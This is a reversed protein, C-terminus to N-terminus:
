PSLNTAGVALNTSFFVKFQCWVCFINKRLYRMELKKKFETHQRVHKTSGLFLIRKCSCKKIRLIHPRSQECNTDNKVTIKQFNAIKGSAPKGLEKGEFIFTSWLFPTQTVFQRQTTNNKEVPKVLPFAVQYTPPIKENKGSFYVKLACLRTLELSQFSM